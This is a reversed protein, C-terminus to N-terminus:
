HAASKFADAFDASHQSKRSSEPVASSTVPSLKTDGSAGKKPAEIIHPSNSTGIIARGPEQAPALLAKPAQSKGSPLLLFLGGLAAAAALVLAPGKWRGKRFEAHPDGWQPSMAGPQVALQGGGAPVRQQAANSAAAGPAGPQVAPAGMAPAVGAQGQFPASPAAFPLAASPPEPSPASLAVAASGAALAGPDVHFPRSSARSTGREADASTFVGAALPPLPSLEPLAQSSGLPVAGDVSQDASSLENEAVVVLSEPTAANLANAALPASQDDMSGGPHGTAHAADDAEADGSLPRSVAPESSAAPESSVAPGSPVSDDLGPLTAMASRVPGPGHDSQRADEMASSPTGAVLADFEPEPEGPEEECALAPSRQSAAGCHPCHAAVGVDSLPLANGCSACDLPANM